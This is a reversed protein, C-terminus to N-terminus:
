ADGRLIRLADVANVPTLGRKPDTRVLPIGAATIGPDLDDLAVVRGHPHERLYDAIQRGRENEVPRWDSWVLSLHNRDEMTDPRTVGRLRGAMVGHTRFLWELGALNMEGRHVHYRWASSVVYGAGAEHLLFNLLTVKDRDITNSQALPDTVHANLVGDVDLFVVPGLPLVPPMPDTM